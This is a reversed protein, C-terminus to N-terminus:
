LPCWGRWCREDRDVCGCVPGDRHVGGIGNRCGWCNPGCDRGNIPESAPARPENVKPTWRGDKMEYGTLAADAHDMWYDYTKSMSRLVLEKSDVCDEKGFMEAGIREVHGISALMGAKFGAYYAERFQENDYKSDSM